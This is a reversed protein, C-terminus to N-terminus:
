ILNRVIASPSSLTPIRLVDEVDKLTSDGIESLRVNKWAVVFRVILDHVITYRAEMCDLGDFGHGHLLQLRRLIAHKGSFAM